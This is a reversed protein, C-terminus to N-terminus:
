LDQSSSLDSPLDEDWDPSSCVEQCQSASSVTDDKTLKRVKKRFKSRTWIGAKFEEFLQSRQSDAHKLRAEERLHEINARIIIPTLSAVLCNFKIYM